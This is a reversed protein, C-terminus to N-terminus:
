EVFDFEIADAGLRVTDGEQAGLERLRDIVGSARLTKHFWNMSEYDDFNVADVLSDISGGTVLYLGEAEKAAEWGRLREEEFFVEEQMPQSAPLIALQALVGDLLPQIGEGTAASVAYFPREGAAQRLRDLHAQCDPLDIKNAVVIQARADLQGYRRLEQNVTNFDDVPDRGEQGSADVVHLLLRTREVHRLFAFGLGAGESAREILGPIDAMAFSEGKHEVIGLNPTLTTFPYNAIKPRAATVRALLSSKGANPFGVLGVDAITRLELVFEHWVTKIGPKAFNPAQRTPTAFRANGHGGRGGNLLVRQRGHEYLDAVINGSAKERVLTGAPVKLILDEGSKGSRNMSAGPAGNQAQYKPKYRFDMLTHLNHDAILVINGGKGGDGGDPGGNIVFKERHFSVCGNGGDGAKLRIVARDVFSAM